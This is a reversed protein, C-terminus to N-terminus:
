APSGVTDPMHVVGLQMLMGLDDRSVWHEVMRSDSFRVIHIQEQQFARGSAPIGFFSGGTHTGRSIVRFWVKDGDATLDEITNHLDPFSARLLWVISKLAEPGPPDARGAFETHSIYDPAILEDCVSLEGRNHVEEYLRYILKANDAAPM